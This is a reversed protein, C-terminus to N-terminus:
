RNSGTAAENTLAARWSEIQRQFERRRSAEDAVVNKSEGPDLALRYLADMNRTEYWIYHWDSTTVHFADERSVWPNEGLAPRDPAVRVTRASGIIRDRGYSARREITPRLSSGLSATAPKAGAYDLLTNFLDLQDVLQERKVGAPVRDPLYFLFPSRLGLTHLSLKGHAGGLLNAIPDGEYDADPPQEWGNDSFYVILTDQM